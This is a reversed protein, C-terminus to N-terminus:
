KVKGKGSKLSEEQLEKFRLERGVALKNFRKLEEIKKELEKTREKVEDELNTVLVSLERTRAQVRIELINKAEELESTREKVKEELGQNLISLESKVQDLEVIKSKITDFFHGM